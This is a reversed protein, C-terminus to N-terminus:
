AGTPASTEAASARSPSSETGTSGALGLVCDMIEAANEGTLILKDYIINNYKINTRNRYVRLCWGVNTM